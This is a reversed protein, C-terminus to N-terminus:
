AREPPSQMPLGAAVLDANVMSWAMNFNDTRRVPRSTRWIDMLAPLREIGPIGPPVLFVTSLAVIGHAAFDHIGARLQALADSDMLLSSRIEVLDAFRRDAPLRKGALTIARKTADMLAADFPGEAVSMLVRGHVSVSVRGFSPKSDIRRPAHPTNPSSM